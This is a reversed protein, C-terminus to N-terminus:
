PKLTNQPYCHCHIIVYIHLLRLCEYYYIALTINHNIGEINIIYNHIDGEDTYDITLKIIKSNKKIFLQLESLEMM